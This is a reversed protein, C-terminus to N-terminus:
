ISLDGDIAEEIEAAAAVTEAVEVIEAVLIEAEATETIHHIMIHHTIM